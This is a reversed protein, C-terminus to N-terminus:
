WIGTWKEETEKQGHGAKESCTGPCETGEERRDSRGVREEAMEECKRRRGEKAVTNLKNSIIVSDFNIIKVM